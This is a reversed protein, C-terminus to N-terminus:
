GDRSSGLFFTGFRATATIREAESEVDWAQVSRVLKSVDSRLSGSALARGDEALTVSVTTIDHWLDPGFDDHLNKRATISYQRGDREFTLAYEAADGQMSFRGGGVIARGDLPAFEVYGTVEGERAPGEVFADLDRVRVRPSITIEEGDLKGTMTERFSVGPVPDRMRTAEPTWPIGDGSMSALYRKTDAYGLELLAEGDIRGLYFDPDLPIPFEPRVVHLRVPPERTENLERIRDFEEFLSGNAALEIMHVYQNFAGNRYIGTNGICWVLWIEDSGRRVAETLNADKIWVSDTYLDSGRRVPPMYIPLSIGAVLLDLDVDTHPVAENTKRTYNCANFTADLGRSAKIRDVDIGLHPFVKEVIGDADGLAPLHTANLYEHLPLPSGFDRVSLTRWRECMETPSVGSLLMALNITGGSTGDAHAFGIGAEELALLVGAQYAVRMGGGALVLSRRPQAGPEAALAPAAASM